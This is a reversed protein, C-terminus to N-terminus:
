RGCITATARLVSPARSMASDVQASHTSVLASPVAYPAMTACSASSVTDNAIDISAHTVVSTSAM